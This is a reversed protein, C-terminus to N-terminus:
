NHDREVVLVTGDVETVRVKGGSTIDEGRIKWMTDDVKIKGYSNVIDEDLTFVRGILDEGRKNLTPYQNDAPPNRKVYMRWAILSIVSLLSFLIIQVQWSLDSAIIMIAGVVAAAIGFWLFIAGPALMEVIFFVLALALWHWYELNSVFDIM